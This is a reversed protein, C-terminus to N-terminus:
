FKAIIANTRTAVDAASLIMVPIEEAAKTAQNMVQVTDAMRLNTETLHNTTTVAAAKEVDQDVTLLVKMVTVAAAKEVDQDVTLLVKMVSVVKSAMDAVAQVETTQAAPIKMVMIEAAPTEMTAQSAATAKTEPIAIETAERIEAVTPVVSAAALVRTATAAETITMETIASVTKLSAADGHSHARAAPHKDAVITVATIIWATSMKDVITDVMLNDATLNTSDV